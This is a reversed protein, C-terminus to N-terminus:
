KFGQIFKEALYEKKEEDTKLRNWVSSYSYKKGDLTFYTKTKQVEGVKEIDFTYYCYNFTYIDNYPASANRNLEEVCFM